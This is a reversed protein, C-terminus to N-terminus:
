ADTRDTTGMAPEALGNDNGAVAVAGVVAGLNGRQRLLEAGFTLPREPGSAATTPLVGFRGGIEEGQPAM